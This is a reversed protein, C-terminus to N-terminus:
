QIKNLFGHLDTDPSLEIKKRLRSRSIYVSSPKINLLDAIEKSNLGIKIYAALRLDHITLEPFKLKLKNSFEQHLEDIQIEFTNDHSVIVSDIMGMMQKTLRAISAPNNRLQLIKERLDTLIQNKLDHDKAVKALEITKSKLQAKLTNIKEEDVLEIPQEKKNHTEIINQKEIEDPHHLTSKFKLISRLLILAFILALILFVFLVISLVAGISFVSSEM